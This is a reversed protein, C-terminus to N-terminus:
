NRKKAIENQLNRNVMELGRIILNKSQIIRRMEGVILKYDTSTDADLYNELIIDSDFVNVDFGLEELRNLLIFNPKRKGRIVQSLYPEKIRNIRCFRKSSGYREKLFRKLIEGSQTM